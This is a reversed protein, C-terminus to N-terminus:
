RARWTLAVSGHGSWVRLTVQRVDPGLAAATRPFAVQYATSFDGYGPLEARLVSAPRRDRSISSPPIEAGTADVLAVHWTARAGRDLDNEAREHTAVVLGFQYDGEARAQAAALLADRPGGRQTADEAARAALWPPAQFTAYVELTQEFGGRLVARRTWAADVEEFDGAQAPWAGSLDVPPAPARCSVAAAVVVVAWVARRIM